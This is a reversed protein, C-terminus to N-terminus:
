FERVDVKGRVQERTLRGALYDALDSGRVRLVFTTSEFLENSPLTSEVGSLAITLWEDAGLQMPKSHEIMADLCSNVIAKTYQTDPDDVPEPLVDAAAAVGPAPRPPVPGVQQEILKVAAQYQRRANADPLSAATSRLVDLAQGTLVQDRQLQQISWVVSKQLTPIEVNFFVGYGELIFGRARPQGILIAPGPASAQLERAIQTAGLRVAAALVGEMVGIEDRRQRTAARATAPQSPAAVPASQQAPV